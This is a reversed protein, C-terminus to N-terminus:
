DILNQFQMARSLDGRIRMSGSCFLWCTSSEGRLWDKFDGVSLIMTVDPKAIVGDVFECTGHHIRIGVDVRELDFLHFQYTASVGAIKESHQLKAALRLAIEHTNM